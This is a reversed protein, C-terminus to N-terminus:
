PHIMVPNTTTQGREAAATTVTPLEETRVVVTRVNSALSGDARRWLGVVRVRDGSRIRGICEHLLPSLPAVAIRGPVETGAQVDIALSFAAGGQIANPADPVVGEIVRGELM